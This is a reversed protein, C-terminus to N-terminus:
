PLEYIRVNRFRSNHNPTGSDKDNVLVLHFGEGIYHRGVPIVFTRFTGVDGSAYEQSWDIDGSWNQTGFIRFVRADNSLTNDEDFGLGHIEGESTSLFDFAVVTKPTLTFTSLSQRWRNGEVFFTLGGDEIEITGSVDQGGYPGTELDNFDVPNVEPQQEYIRVNRFRSTNNATGSDKDNVLVLHFGDGTYFAGVPIRYTVFSGLTPYDGKYLPIASSWNQTGFLQFIRLDNSLVDDEDLGIGHIEGQSTSQFEFELVTFPTITFTDTTKRWRNGEMFFTAGDDEIAIPGAVDQNSYSETPTANWDIVDPPGSKPEIIVSISALGELGGSDTAKATITHSGVALTTTTFSGGSGISGDISSSWELSATLDGDEADNATGSFSVPNGQIATTGDPPSTIAVEPPTNPTPACRSTGTVVVDDIFWGTFGNSIGDVTDFRFAVQIKEGAFAALSISGSSTWVSGSPQTSDLSFVTTSGSDTVIEVQTRDYSGGSYSEV